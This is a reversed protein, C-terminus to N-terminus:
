KLRQKIRFILVAGFFLICAAGVGKIIFPHIGSEQQSVDTILYYGLLMFLIALGIGFFGTPKKIKKDNTEM